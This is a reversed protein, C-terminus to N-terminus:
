KYKFYTINNSIVNSLHTLVIKKLFHYKVKM